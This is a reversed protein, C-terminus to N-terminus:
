ETMYEAMYCMAQTAPLISEHTPSRRRLQWIVERPKGGLSNALPSAALFEVLSKVLGRVADGSANVAEHGFCFCERAFDQWSRLSYLM